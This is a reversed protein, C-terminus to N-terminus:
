RKGVRRAVLRTASWDSAVSFSSTQSLGATPAADQIDSPEVHHRRGAKPTLVWIPGNETLYALVDVLADVLDSDGDRWWLLVADVVEQAEGEIFPNGTLDVIAARLEEDCDKGYGSELILYGPEFGLRGAMSGSPTDVLAWGKGFEGPKGNPLRTILEGL